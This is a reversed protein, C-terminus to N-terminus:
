TRCEPLSDRIYRDMDAVIAGVDRMRDLRPRHDFPRALAGDIEEITAVPIADVVDCLVQPIFLRSKVKPTIIKMGMAAADVVSHDYSQVFTVIFTDYDAMRRLYDEVPLVPIVERLFAPHGADDRGLQGVEWEPHRAFYEWLPATWDPWGYKKAAAFSFPSHDLLVRRRGGVQVSPYLRSDIPPPIRILKEKWTSLGPQDPGYYYFRDVIAAVSPCTLEFMGIVLRASARTQQMHRGVPSWATAGHVVAVDAMVPTAMNCTIVRVDPMQAFHHLLARCFVGVSTNDSKVYRGILQVSYGM